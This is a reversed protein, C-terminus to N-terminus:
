ARLAQVLLALEDFVTWEEVIVGGQFRFHSIGILALSRGAPMAGLAGYPSSTGDLRWRVAMITGDSEESWSLHEVRVIGDPVSALLGIVLHAIARPGSAERLGPWHAAAAPAYKKGLAAFARRNWCDFHAIWYREPPSDGWNPAALPADPPLPALPEAAPLEALRRALELRDLGMQIMAAGTDRALWETHIKNARSLCDAAFYRALRAGKGEGWATAGSNVSQAFGLHSTYFDREDGSWAVNLHTTRFDTFAFISQVTGAVVGDVGRTTGMSTHVVCDAAYTDRIRDVAADAWIEETIGVIYHVIDRWCPEFGAMEQTREGSVRRVSETSLGRIQTVVPRSPLEFPTERTM